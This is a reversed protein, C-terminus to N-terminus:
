CLTRANYSHKPKSGITLHVLSYSVTDFPRNMLMQAYLLACTLFFSLAYVYFYLSIFVATLQLTKCASVDNAGGPTIYSRRHCEDQDSFCANAIM